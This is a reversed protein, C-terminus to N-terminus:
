VSWREAPELHVPSYPCAVKLKTGCSRHWGARSDTRITRTRTSVRISGALSIATSSQASSRPEITRYLQMDLARFAHINQNWICAAADATTFSRNLSRVIACTMDVSFLKAMISLSLVTNSSSSEIVRSVGDLEGREAAKSLMSFAPISKINMLPVLPM